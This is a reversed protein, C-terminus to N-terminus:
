IRKIDKIITKLLKINININQENINLKIDPEDFILDIRKSVFKIIGIKRNDYILEINNNKIM